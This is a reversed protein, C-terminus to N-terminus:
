NKEFLKLQNRKIPDYYKLNSDTKTFRQIFKDRAVEGRSRRQQGHKWLNPLWTDICTRIIRVDVEDHEMRGPGLEFHKQMTKKKIENNQHERLAFIHHHIRAQRQTAGPNETNGFLGGVNECSKNITM